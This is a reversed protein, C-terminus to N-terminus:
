RVGTASVALALEHGGTGDVYSVIVRITQAGVRTPTFGILLSQTDQPKVCPALAIANFDGYREAIAGEPLRHDSPPNHLSPDYPDPPIIRIATIDADVRGVNKLTIAASRAKGLTVNGLDVRTSSAVLQGSDLAQVVEATSPADPTPATDVACAGLALALGLSSLRIWHSNNLM